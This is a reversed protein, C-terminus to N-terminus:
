EASADLNKPAKDAKKESNEAMEERFKEESLDLDAGIITPTVLIILERKNESTVKSRFFWGIIPIKSIIPIGTDTQNSDVSNIGGIVATENNRRILNTVLNRLNKNAAASGQVAPIPSASEVKIEMKVSGDATIHPTIEIKLTYRVSSMENRGNGQPIPFFEEQGVEITAAQNNLVIFSNNQLTKSNRQIESMRLRLDLEFANNISGFHFDAAGRNSLNSPAIGTDVSFASSMSNPFPLNGFGGGTGQDNRYPAGWNIGLDRNNKRIVEVIRTKIKVQPTPLDVRAILTKIKKLDFPIAEIIISNTRKDAQVKIHRDDDSKPLMTQIVKVVEDADSYSLQYVFAQTAMSSAEAKKNLERKKKEELIASLDDIRSIGSKLPIIGLSQSYLIAELAQDWPVQHLSISIKKEGVAEPFIFNNSSEASIIKIIEKFRAEKFVFDLLKTSTKSRVASSSKGNSPLMKGGEPLSNEETEAAAASPLPTQVIGNDEEEGGFTFGDDSGGASVPGKAGRALGLFLCGQLVVLMGIEYLKVSM